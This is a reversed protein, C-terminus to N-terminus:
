GGRIDKILLHVSVHRGHIKKLEQVVERAKFYQDIFVGLEVARGEIARRQEVFHWAIEPPQYVYLIQVLRKKRLSREVNKRAQDYKAFTGDLLFSQDNKFAKDLARSVIISVAAQYDAANSGTYGPLKERVADPDIRIVRDDPFQNLLEVSAETKGAGPSGAMFVSVPKDEAPYTALDTMENALREKNQRAYTEPASQSHVKKVGFSGM